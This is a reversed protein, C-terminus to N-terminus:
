VSKVRINLNSLSYSNSTVTRNFKKDDYISNTQYLKADLTYNIKAETEKLSSSATGWTLTQASIKTISLCIIAFVIIKTTKLTM